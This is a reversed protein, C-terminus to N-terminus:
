KKSPLNEPFIKLNPMKSSKRRIEVKEKLQNIDQFSYLCNMVNKKLSLSNEISIILFGFIMAINAMGGLNSIADLLKLYTRQINQSLRSSYFTCIFFSQSNNLNPLYYMDLEKTDFLIDQITNNNSSIYGDDTMIALNKLFIALNKRLSADIYYFDNYVISQTPTLYNLPDLSTGVYYVNFTKGNLFDAIEQPSQCTNNMTKNDCMDVEIAFYTLFNGDWYGETEFFNEDLCFAGDLGLKYYEDDIFDSPQCLHLTKTINKVFDFGNGSSNAQMYSNTAKIEFITENSYCVSNSDSISIAFLKNSYTILPRNAHTVDINAITPLQRKFVDNQSFSVGLFIIIGISLLIGITTSNKEKKEFKIIVPTKFLDLLTLLSFFYVFSM